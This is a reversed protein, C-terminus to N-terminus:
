NCNSSSDSSSSLIIEKTPPGSFFEIPDLVKKPKTRSFLYKLKFRISHQEKAVKSLESLKAIQWLIRMNRELRAIEREKERNEEKIREIERRKKEGTITDYFDFLIELIWNMTRDGFNFWIKGSFILIFCM